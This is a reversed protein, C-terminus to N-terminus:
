IHTGKTSDGGQWRAHRDHEAALSGIEDPAFSGRETVYADIASPPTLDFAPNRVTIPETGSYLEGAPREELDVTREHSIKDTGTAVVVRIGADAAALAAPRTGVKNCLTGDRYVTDAGTVLLDAEWEVLQHPFAADTTLTVDTERAVRTAVQRGEGGPRSESLLLADPPGEDIATLVTGSRSLTAVRKGDIAAGLNSAAVSDAEVASKIADHAQCEVTSPDIAGGDSADFLVRNVRNEVVTMAPRAALLAEGVAEVSTAAERGRALLGAEDRLVALARYSIYASGHERDSEVTEVTPRVRDYSRWLEPVTERDLIATPSTWEFGKSEWNTRVSRRECDFLYPHVRWSDEGDDVTFPEGATILRCDTAPDIGTEERIEREIQSDPDGEAHGSVGSWMGPYSGVAEGRHLLLVDGDNRLFGTVVSQAGM